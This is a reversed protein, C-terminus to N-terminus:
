RHEQRGSVETSRHPAAPQSPFLPVRLPRGLGRSAGLSVHPCEWSAPPAVPSRSPWTACPPAAPSTCRPAVPIGAEGPSGWFPDGLRFLGGGFLMGLSQPVEWFCRPSRLLFPNHAASLSSLAPTPRPTNPNSVGLVSTNGVYPNLPIGRVEGELVAMRPPEVFAFTSIVFRQYHSPFPLEPSAPGMPILRTRYNDGQFPCRPPFCPCQTLM